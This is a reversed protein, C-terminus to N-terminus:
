FMLFLEKFESKRNGIHHYIHKERIDTLVSGFQFSVVRSAGDKLYFLVMLIPEGM